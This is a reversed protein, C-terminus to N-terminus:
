HLSKLIPQYKKLKKRLQKYKPEVKAVESWFDKSHNMYKTHALEHIIVYYVVNQPLRILHSNLTINQRSDCAGWRSRMPKVNLSKYEYGHEKSIDRLMELFTQKAYLTQAKQVSKNLYEAKQRDTYSVPLFVTLSEAKQISSPRQRNTEVIRLKHQPTIQENDMFEHISNQRQDSIWSKKSEVFNIIFSKPVLWPASVKITGDHAVRLSVNKAGRRRQISIAGLEHHHENKVAM